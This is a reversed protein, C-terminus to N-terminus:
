PTPRVSSSVLEKLTNEAFKQLEKVLAQNGGSDGKQAFFSPGTGINQNNGLRQSVNEIEELVRSSFDLADGRDKLNNAM